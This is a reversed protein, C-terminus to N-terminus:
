TRDNHTMLGPSITIAKLECFDEIASAGNLRGLGSHKFGGEEAEDSLAAWENIWVVGADIERAVRLGKTVDHTWISAGLGYASDNALAVAEAETEFVQMTMVPGFTETQVIDMAPDTVTLLTPRYFAGKSLPGETVPGGRVVIKAGEAIAKEVVKDVREVNPKDIMPGMDSNVDAAPGVKLVRFREALRDRLAEAIGSQVLVRSGTVCFQGAFITLAKELGPVTADLDADDFVVMPTKGGLELGLRKLNPAAAASIAQGTATSGTFSIVPVDPSDVLHRSGEGTDTFMNIVGKPLDAAESMIRATLANTQATQGPMKIVVTAGAALAPALSRVMLIVPSNWPVIIGAVGKPQRIVMALKGPQPEVVRGFETRTVGAFYRLKSACMDVEFTAEAKVKGNETSLLEILEDRNREFADALQGLVRARLIRDRSWGPRQLARKAAAIGAVAADLGGDVYSGIVEYTAPNISDRVTAGGIWDGDIWNLAVATARQPRQEIKM